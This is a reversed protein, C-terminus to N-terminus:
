AYLCFLLHVQRIWRSSLNGKTFLTFFILCSKNLANSHLTQHTVVSSTGHRGGAINITKMLKKKESIDLVLFLVVNILKGTPTFLNKVDLKNGKEVHM